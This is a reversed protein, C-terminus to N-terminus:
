DMTLTIFPIDPRLVNIHMLVFILYFPDRLDINDLVNKTEMCHATSCDDIWRRESRVSFYYSQKISFIHRMKSSSLNERTMWVCPSSAKLRLELIKGRRRDNQASSSWSNLKVLVLETTRRGIAVSNTRGDM